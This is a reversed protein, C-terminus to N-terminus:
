FRGGTMEKMTAPPRQLPLGCRGGVPKQPLTHRSGRRRPLLVHWRRCGLFIGNGAMLYAAIVHFIPRFVPPPFRAQRAFRRPIRWDGGSENDDPAFRNRTSSRPVIGMRAAHALLCASPNCAILGMAPMGEGALALPTGTTVLRGDDDASLARPQPIGLAAAIQVSIRRDPRVDMSMPMGFQIRGNLFLESSDRM